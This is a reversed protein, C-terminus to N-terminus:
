NIPFFGYRGIEKNKSFHYYTMKPILDEDPEQNDFVIIQRDNFSECLDTYFAYIMDKQLKVEEDKEDDDGPRYTTLPSDLIVFQPHRGYSSLYQMLGLSFAAYSIARYGKGFHSRPKDGIILDRAKHDFTVKNFGPFSWRELITSICKCLQSLESSFDPIEYKETKNELQVRLEGIEAILSDRAQVKAREKLFENKKNNLLKIAVNYDKLKASVTGELVSTVETLEQTKTSILSNLEQYEKRLDDISDDLGQVQIKNKSIEAQTSKMLLKLDEKDKEKEFEQGCTPCNALEYLDIYSAAEVGAELRELDSSYKEILLGFRNQLLLNEREQERLSTLEDAIDRRRSDFERSADVLATLEDQANGLSVELQNLENDLRESSAKVKEHDAFKKAVFEELAKARSEIAGESDQQQKLEKVISDDTGTLLTKLLSREQTQERQGEGLPSSETIIRGEDVLFLRKLVRLTLSSTKLSEVGNVLVKDNLDLKDLFYASLNKKGKHSPSLVLTESENRDGDLEILTIKPNNASIERKLVFSENGGYEIETEVTTYGNAESISKPPEESGFIYQFCKIVYSKGTDSAGAVVNLGKKFTLEAKPKGKGTVTIRVINM